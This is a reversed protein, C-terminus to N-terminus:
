RKKNLCKLYQEAAAVREEVKGYMWDVWFDKATLHRLSEYACFRTFGYEDALLPLLKKAHAVQGCVGLALGAHPRLASKPHDDLFKALAEGAEKSKTRGLAFLIEEELLVLPKFQARDRLTFAMKFGLLYHLIASSVNNKYLFDGKHGKLGSM